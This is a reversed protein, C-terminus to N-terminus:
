LTVGQFDQSFAKTAKGRAALVLTSSMVNPTPVFHGVAHRAIGQARTKAKRCVLCLTNGAMATTAVTVNRLVYAKVAMRVNAAERGGTLISICETSM